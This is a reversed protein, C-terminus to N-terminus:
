KTKSVIIDTVAEYIGDKKLLGIFKRDENLVPLENHWSHNNKVQKFLKVSELITSDVSLFKTMYNIGYMESLKGSELSKIFSNYVDYNYHKGVYIHERKLLGEFRGSNDVVLVYKINPLRKFYTGISYQDYYDYKGVTFSLVQSRNYGLRGNYIEDIGSKAKVPLPEYYAFIKNRDLSALSRIEIELEIGFGKFNKIIGSLILAIIVPACAVCIWKADVDLMDSHYHRILFLIIFFIISIFIGIGIIDYKDIKKVESM